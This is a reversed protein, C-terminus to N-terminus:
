SAECSVRANSDPLTGTLKGQFQCLIFLILYFMSSALHYWVTGYKRGLFWGLHCIAVFLSDALLKFVMRFLLAYLYFMASHIVYAHHFIPRQKSLMVAYSWSRNDLIFRSVYIFTFCLWSNGTFLCAYALFVLRGCTWNDEFGDLMLDFSNIWRMICSTQFWVVLWPYILGGCSVIWVHFALLM